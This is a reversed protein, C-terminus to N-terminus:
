GIELKGHTTACSPCLTDLSHRCHGICNRSQGPHLTLSHTNAFLPRKSGSSMPWYPLAAGLSYQGDSPSCPVNATGLLHAGLAAFFIIGGCKCSGITTAGNCGGCNTFSTNISSNSVSMWLVTHSSGGGANGRLSCGLSCADHTPFGWNM